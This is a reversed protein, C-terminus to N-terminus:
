PTIRSEPERRPQHLPPAPAEIPLVKPERVAAAVHAAENWPPVAQVPRTSSPPQPRVSSTENPSAPLVTKLHKELRRKLDVARTTSRHTLEALIARLCSENERSETFLRDLQDIRLQGYPRATMGEKINKSERT